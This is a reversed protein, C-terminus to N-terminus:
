PLHSYAMPANTFIIKPCVPILPVTESFLPGSDSGSFDTSAKGNVQIPVSDTGPHLTVHLGVYWVFAFHFLGLFFLFLLFFSVFSSQSPLLYLCFAPISLPFFSCTESM